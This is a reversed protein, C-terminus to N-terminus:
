KKFYRAAAVAVGIGLLALVGPESVPTPKIVALAPSAIAFLAMAPILFKM